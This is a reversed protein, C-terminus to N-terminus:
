RYTEPLLRDIADGALETLHSCVFTVVRSYYTVEVPHPLMATQTVSRGVLLNLRLNRTLAISKSGKWKESERGVSCM